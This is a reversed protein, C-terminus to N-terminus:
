PTWRLLCRQAALTEVKEILGAFATLQWNSAGADRNNTTPNIPQQPPLPAHILARGIEVEFRGPSQAQLLEWCHIVADRQKLIVTKAVLKDSKALNVAPAAPLLNWLDNNRSISFPITHDVAFEKKLPRDTWVCRLDPTGAYIKRAFQVDRDTVPRILLRDIIDKIPVQKESM